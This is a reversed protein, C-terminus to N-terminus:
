PNHYALYHLRMSCWRALGLTRETIYVRDTKECAERRYNAVTVRKTKSKPPKQKNKNQKYDANKVELNIVVVLHQTM